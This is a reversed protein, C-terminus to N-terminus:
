DNSTDSTLFNLTIYPAKYVNYDEDGEVAAPNKLVPSWIAKDFGLWTFINFEDFDNEGYAGVEYDSNYELMYAMCFSVKNVATSAFGGVIPSATKLAVDIVVEKSILTGISICNHIYFSGIAGSQYGIIGGVRPTSYTTEATGAFVVHDIELYYPTGAKANDFSGVVGGVQQEGKIYSNIFCNSVYVEVGSQPGSTTQILGIIGAVRQGSGTIKHEADNDISINSIYSPISSEFVHGIFGVRTIGDITVNKLAVNHVYGGYMTAIIGTQQKGGIVSVNEFKINEITGGKLAYFIGAGNTENNVTVNVNKVTHGNGNLFGTFPQTGRTWTKDTFNIDQTLLYITEEPVEKTEETTGITGGGAIKMFEEPTSIEVVKIPTKYVESTVTGELNALAYYINYAGSNDNAFQLNISTDRFDYHAVGEYNKLQEGTLTLNEKSSIAYLTGTPSNLSGGITYGDRNVVITANGVFDVEATRSAVFIKYTMSKTEDSGNLKVTHTIRYVGAKNPSFGSVTTYTKNDDVAYEYKSTVNYQNAKLLTGNYYSGNEVMLQPEEYQRFMDLILRGGDKIDSGDSNVHVSLGGISPIDKKVTLAFEKTISRNLYSIKATLKVVKDSDEPRNVKITVYESASTSIDTLKDVHLIDDNESTWDITCNVIRSAVDFDQYVASEDANVTLTEKAKALVASASNSYWENWDKEAFHTYESWTSLNVTAGIKNDEGLLKGYDKIALVDGMNISGDSNRFKNHHRDANLSTIQGNSITGLNKLSDINYKYQYEGTEEFPLAKFIDTAVLTDVLDTYRKGAITDADISGVVKNAKGSGILLSDTVSGRYEDSELSIAYKDSASLTRIVSNYSYTQRAVNINGHTDHNANNKIKGYNPNDIVNGNADTATTNYDYVKNIIRGFNPNANGDPLLPNDDVNASNNYSTVGEIKLYGPNSNDTVGHMRNNFALCNYVFVDGEMVSGGLKFGNGDGDRTKYSDKGWKADSDNTNLNESKSSDWKNGFLKNNDKQTYELYGNEFAVSNYIIVQGINGSDTKAYLDWGDDSNRYAICGDFVNGYGVTLKAAFGDANEGYTENDYNNHSTCNKILNFSPWLDITNYESYSRGLQLGTDRNNYFECNEITNYSGGIYMGNDGAGRIDIGYWYVYDGYIEIGREASGFKMASFDLIAEETESANKITIMGNFVGSATMRINADFNYVGPMVLVTDGAKLTTGRLLTDLRYPKEQSGDPNDSPTNSVYYTNGKIQSVKGKGNSENPSCAAIPLAACASIASIALVAFASFIKKKM